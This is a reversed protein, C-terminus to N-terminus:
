TEITELNMGVSDPRTQISDKEGPPPNQLFLLEHLGDVTHEADWGAFLSEADLTAGCMVDTLQLGGVHSGPRM